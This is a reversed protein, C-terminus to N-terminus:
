QEAFESPKKLVSGHYAKGSWAWVGWSANDFGPTYCEDDDEVWERIRSAASSLGVLLDGSEIMEVEFYAKGRM